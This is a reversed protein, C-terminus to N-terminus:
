REAFRTEPAPTFVKEERLIRTVIIPSELMKFLTRIPEGVLHRNELNLHVAVIQSSSMRSLRRHLKEERELNVRFIKKLILLSGITGFVGFPYAVAYALTVLSLDINTVKL